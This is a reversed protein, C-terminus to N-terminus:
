AFRVWEAGDDLRAVLEGTGVWGMLWSEERFPSDDAVEGGGVVVDLSVEAKFASMAARVRARRLRGSVILSARM